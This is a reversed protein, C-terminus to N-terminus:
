GNAEEKLIEGYRVSFLYVQAFTMEMFEGISSVLGRSRFFLYNKIM